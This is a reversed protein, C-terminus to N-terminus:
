KILSYVSTKEQMMNLGYFNLLYFVLSRVQYIVFGVPEMFSVSLKNDISGNTFHKFKPYCDNEDEVRVYVVISSNLRDASALDCVILKFTYLPLITSQHESTVLNERDIEGNTHIRAVYNGNNSDLTAVVVFPITEGNETRM